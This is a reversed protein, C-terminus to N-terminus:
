VVSLIETNKVNFHEHIYLLVNKMCIMLMKHVIIMLKFLVNEGVQIELIKNFLFILSKACLM